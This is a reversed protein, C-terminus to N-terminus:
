ADRGQVPRWYLGAANQAARINAQKITVPRDWSEGWLEFVELSPPPPDTAFCRWGGGSPPLMGEAVPLPSPAPPLFSQPSDVTVVSNIIRVNECETMVVDKCRHLKVSQADELAFGGEGLWRRVWDKAWNM